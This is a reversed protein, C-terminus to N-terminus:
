QFVERTGDFSNSFRDLLSVFRLSIQANMQDGRQLVEGGGKVFPGLLLAAELGLLLPLTMLILVGLMLGSATVVAVLTTALLFVTRGLLILLMGSMGFLCLLMMLAVELVMIARHNGVAFLPIIRRKLGM